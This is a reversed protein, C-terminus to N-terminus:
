EDEGGMKAGCNPCFKWMGRQNQHEYGCYSCIRFPSDYYGDEIWEGTRETPTVPPLSEIAKVFYENCPTNCINKVADIAQQRSICDLKSKPQGMTSEEGKSTANEASELKGTIQKQNVSPMDMVVKVDPCSGEYCDGCSHELGCKACMAKITDARSICDTTTASEADGRIARDIEQWEELSLERTGTALEVWMPSHTDDKLAKIALDLATLKKGYNPVGHSKMQDRWQKLEQTAERRDM